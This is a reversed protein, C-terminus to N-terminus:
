TYMAERLAKGALQVDVRQAVLLAKDSRYVARQEVTMAPEAFRELTEVLRYLADDHDNQKELFEYTARDRSVLRTNCANVKATLDTNSDKLDKTLSAATDVLQKAVDDSSKNVRKEIVKAWLGLLGAVAAVSVPGIVGWWAPNM